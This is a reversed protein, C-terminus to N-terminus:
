AARPQQEGLTRDLFREIAANVRDPHTVPGMHGMGDLERLEGRPLAPALLSAVARAPAPSDTGALYLTPVALAAAETLIGPEGLSCQWEAPLQRIGDLIAGRREVPTADWTGPAHWYDVFRRAAGALDGAAVARTTEEALAVFEATLPDGQRHRVLPSFLAPEYVVLARVRAPHLLAAKLAVAGGFSHGVLAVSPGVMDLLPALAAVEDELRAPRDGPWPANGGYGIRSPALVRYRGALRAMLARWQGPGGASAHLCLVPFGAGAERYTIMM